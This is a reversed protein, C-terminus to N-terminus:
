INHSGFFEVLEDGLDFGVDLAPFLEVVEDVDGAGFFEPRLVFAM